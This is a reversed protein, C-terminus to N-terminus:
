FTVKEFGAIKGLRNIAETLSPRADRKLATMDSILDRYSGPVLTDERYAEFNRQTGTKFLEVFDITWDSNETFVDGLTMGFAFVDRAPLKDDLDLNHRHFQYFDSGDSPEDLYGPTGGGSTRSSGHPVALEFDFLRGDLGNWFINELKVDGHVFGSRHLVECGQMAHWLACLRAKQPITKFHTGLVPVHSQDPALTVTSYNNNGRDECSFVHEEALFPSNVGGPGTHLTFPDSGNWLTPKVRFAGVDKVSFHKAIESSAGGLPRWRAPSSFEAIAPDKEFATQKVMVTPIELSVLDFLRQRLDNVLGLLKPHVTAKWGVPSYFDEAYFLLQTNYNVRSLLRQAGDKVSRNSLAARKMGCFLPTVLERPTHIVELNKFVAESM